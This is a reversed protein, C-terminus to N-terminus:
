RFIVFTTPTTGTAKIKAAAVPYIVGQLCYITATNGDGDIIATAGDQDTAMFANCSVATDDSPTHAIAAKYSIGDSYYKPM